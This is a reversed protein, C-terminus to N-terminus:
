GGTIEHAVKRVGDIEDDADGEHLADRAGVPVHPEDWAFPLLHEREPHALHAGRDHEVGLDM